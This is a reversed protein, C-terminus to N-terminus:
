RNAVMRAVLLVACDMDRPLSWACEERGPNEAM